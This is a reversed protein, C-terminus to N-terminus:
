PSLELNMSDSGHLLGYLDRLQTTKLHGRESGVPHILLGQSSCHSWLPAPHEGSTVVDHGKKGRGKPQHPFSHKLRTNNGSLLLKLSKESMFQNLKQGYHVYLVPYLLLSSYKNLIKNLSSVLCKSHRGQM